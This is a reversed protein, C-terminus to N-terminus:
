YFMLPKNEDVKYQGKKKREELDEFFGIDKKLKELFNVLQDRNARISIRRWGTEDNLEYHVYMYANKMEVKKVFSYKSLEGTIWKYIM